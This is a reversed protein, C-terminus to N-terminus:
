MRQTSTTNLVKYLTSERQEKQAIHSFAHVLLICTTCIFPLFDSQMDLAFSLAGQKADVFAGPRGGSLRPPCSHMWTWLFRSCDIAKNHKHRRSSAARGSGIGASHPSGATTQHVCTDAAPRARETCAHTHNHIIIIM